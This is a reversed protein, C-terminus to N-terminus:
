PHHQEYLGDLRIKTLIAQNKTKFKITLPFHSTILCINTNLIPINKVLIRTKEIKYDNIEHKFAFSKTGIKLIEYIASFSSLLIGILHKYDTDLLLTFNDFQNLSTLSYQGNKHKKYEFYIKTM